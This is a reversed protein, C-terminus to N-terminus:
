GGNGDSKRKFYAGVDIICNCVGSIEKKMEFGGTTNKFKNNKM